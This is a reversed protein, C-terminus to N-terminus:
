DMNILGDVRKDVDNKKIDWIKKKYNKSWGSLSNIVIWSNM